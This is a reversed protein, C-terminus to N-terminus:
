HPAGVRSRWADLAAICKGLSASRVAAVEPRWSRRAFEIMRSAFAPGVAGSTGQAPVMDDAIDKRRSKRALNVITQKPQPLSDPDSPVDRARVSLFAAIREADALLWADVTRVPVRFRMLASPSPILVKLLQPACPADHDLDRLVLWPAYRAAVNWAAVKGDLYGKGREGYVTGMGIGLWDFIRSVVETDTPGEVGVSVIESM